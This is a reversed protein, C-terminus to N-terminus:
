LSAEETRIELNGVYTREIIKETDFGFLSRM